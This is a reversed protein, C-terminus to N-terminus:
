LLQYVGLLIDAGQTVEIINYDIIMTIQDSSKRVPYVNDDIHLERNASDYKIHSKGVKTNWDQELLQGKVTISCAEDVPIDKVTKDWVTNSLQQAMEKVPRLCLSLKGAEEIVELERPIGM